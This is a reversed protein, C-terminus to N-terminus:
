DSAELFVWLEGIVGSESDQTVGACERAVMVITSVLRHISSELMVYSPFDRDALFREVRTIVFDWDHWACNDEYYAVCPGDELGRVSDQAEQRKPAKSLDFEMFWLGPYETPINPFHCEINRIFRLSGTGRGGSRGAKFM